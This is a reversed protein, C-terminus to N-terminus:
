ILQEHLLTLADPLEDSKGRAQTWEVLRKSTVKRSSFQEQKLWLLIKRALTGTQGLKDLEQWRAEYLFDLLEDGFVTPLQRMQEWSSRAVDSVLLQMLLPIGGSREVLWKMQKKDAIDARLKALGPHTHQYQDIHWHLFEGVVELEQLPNWVFSWINLM